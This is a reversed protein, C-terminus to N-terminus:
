KLYSLGEFVEELEVMQGFVILVVIAKNRGWKQQVTHTEIAVFKVETQLYKLHKHDYGKLVIIRRGDREWSDIYQYKVQHQELKNYLFMLGDAINAAATGQDMRLDTNLVAYFVYQSPGPERYIPVSKLKRYMHTKRKKNIHRRNYLKSLNISSKKTTRKNCTRTKEEKMM